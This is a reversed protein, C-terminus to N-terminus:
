LTQVCVEIFLLDMNIPMVLPFLVLPASRVFQDIYEDAIVAFPSPNYFVHHHRHITWFSNFSHGLRHYAFEWFDTGIWIVFFSLILHNWGHEGPLGCYAQSQGRASLWQLFCCSLFLFIIFLSFRFL